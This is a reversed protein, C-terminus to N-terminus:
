RDVPQGPRVRLTILLKLAEQDGGCVAGYGDEGALPFAVFELVICQDILEPGPSAALVLIWDVRELVRDPRELKARSADAHLDGCVIQVRVMVDPDLFYEASAQDGIRGVQDM